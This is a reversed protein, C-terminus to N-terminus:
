IYAVLTGRLVGVQTEGFEALRVFQEVRSGTLITWRNQLTGGNDLNMLADKPIRSTHTRGIEVQELWRVPQKNFGFPPDFM